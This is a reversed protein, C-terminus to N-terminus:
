SIHVGKSLFGNWTASRSAAPAAWLLWDALDSVVMGAGALFYVLSSLVLWTLNVSGNHTLVPLEVRLVVGFWRATLPAVDPARNTESVLAM